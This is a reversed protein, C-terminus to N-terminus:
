RCASVTDFDAELEPSVLQDTDIGSQAYENNLTTMTTGVSKYFTDAHAPDLAKIASSAHAYAASIKRLSAVFRKEIVAGGDVDPVGAARVAATAKDTASRAGDLLDILHARTEDATKASAMAQQATSNLKTIESRWPSLARCVDAAWSKPEVAHTCGSVGTIVALGLVILAATRARRM